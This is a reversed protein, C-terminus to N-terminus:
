RYDLVMVTGSADWRRMTRYLANGCLGRRAALGHRKRGCPSVNSPPFIATTRDTQGIAFSEFYKKPELTIQFHITPTRPQDRIDIDCETDNRFEMYITKEVLQSKASHLACILFLLMIIM